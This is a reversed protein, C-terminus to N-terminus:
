RRGRALPSSGAAEPCECSEGDDAGRLRPHDRTAMTVSPQSLTPGACAPIIRVREMRDRRGSPRGRALPSSGVTVGSSWTSQGDAGRLRPHDKWAARRIRSSWTPGACAPIIRVDAAESVLSDHRGRALPSSGADLCSGADTDRDAGRLRPHDGPRNVAVVTAPTPGACAPIIREGAGDRRTDLPRGRALPSSGRRSWQTPQAPQDAGRLRPHDRPSIGRNRKLKTPGACAPIIGVADSKADSSFPRGRALPSSGHPRPSAGTSGPDAGRM